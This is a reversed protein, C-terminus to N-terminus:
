DSWREGGYYTKTERPDHITVSLGEPLVVPLLSDCGYPGVCPPNNIVVDIHRIGARRMRAALKMEVHTVIVPEGVDLVGASRLLHRVEEADQDEGSVVHGSAGSGDFWKGHTQKGDPNPKPVQPPLSARIADAQDRTLTPAATPSNSATPRPTAAGGGTLNALYQEILTRATTLVQHLKRVQQKTLSLHGLAQAVEPRQSGQAADTFTREAHDILSLVQALPALDLAALVQRLDAAIREVSM